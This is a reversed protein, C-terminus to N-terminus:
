ILTLFKRKSPAFSYRATAHLKVYCVESRRYDEVTPHGRLAVGVFRGCFVLERREKYPHGETAVGRNM